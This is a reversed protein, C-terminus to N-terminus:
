IPYLSPKPTQWGSATHLGLQGNQGTPVYLDEVFQTAQVAALQAM